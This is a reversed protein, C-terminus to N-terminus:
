RLGKSITYNVGLYRLATSPKAGSVLVDDVSLGPDRVVWSHHTSGIWFSKCKLPNLKMGRDALFQTILDLQAQAGEASDALVIIDDAFALGGIVQGHVSDGEVQLARVVPDIM